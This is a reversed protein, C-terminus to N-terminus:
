VTLDIFERLLRMITKYGRGTLGFRADHTSTIASDSDAPRLVSLRTGSELRGTDKDLGGWPFRFDIMSLCTLQPYATLPFHHQLASLEYLRCYTASTIAVNDASKSEEGSFERM